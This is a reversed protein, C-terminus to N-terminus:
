PSGQLKLEPGGMSPLFDLLSYDREETKYDVCYPIVNISPYDKLLSMSRPMHYASTVLIFSKPNYLSMMNELNEYTNRSTDELLIDKQPIELNRMMRGAIEAESPWDDGQVTRGGCYIIPIQLSKQLLVGELLRATGSTTLTSGTKRSISGGGLIVIYRAASCDEPMTQECYRSELPYLLLDEVPRISFLYILFPIGIIILKSSLRNRLLFLIIGLSIFLGPPLFLASIARNFFM